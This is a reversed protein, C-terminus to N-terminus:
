IRPVPAPQVQQRLQDLMISLAGELGTTLAATVLAGAVIAFASGWAAISRLQYLDILQRWGLHQRRLLLLDGATVGLLLAFLILELVFIGYDAWAADDNWVGGFAVPPVVIVLLLVLAKAAGSSGRLWPFVCGFFFGYLPWQLLNWALTTAVAAMAIPNGQTPPTKWIELFLIVMWPLGLVAGVVAAQMGHRWGGGALEALRDATPSWRPRLRPDIAGIAGDLANRDKRYEAYPQETTRFTRLLARRRVVLAQREQGLSRILTRLRDARRRVAEHDPQHRLALLTGAAGLLPTVPIYFWRDPWYFAWCAYAVAATAVAPRSWTSDLRGCVVILVALDVFTVVEWAQELYADLNWPGFDLEPPGPYIAALMWWGLFAVAVAAFVWSWGGVARAGALDLVVRVSSRVFLGLTLTLLVGVAGFVALRAWNTEGWYLACLVRGYAAATGVAAACVAAVAPNCIGWWHLVRDLLLALAGVLVGTVAAVNGVYAADAADRNVVLAAVVGALVAVGLLWIPSAFLRRPRAITRTGAALVVALLCGVAVAASCSLASHGVVQWAPPLDAPAQGPWNTTRIRLTHWNTWDDLVWITADLMALALPVALCVAAIRHVADYAAGLHVRARRIALLVLVMPGIGLLTSLVKGIDPIAAAGIRMLGGRLTQEVVHRFTLRLECTGGGGAETGVLCRRVVVRGPHRDVREDSVAAYAGADQPQQVQVAVGDAVTTTVHDWGACLAMQRPARVDVVLSSLDIRYPAAFLSVRGDRTDLRDVTVREFSLDFSDRGNPLLPFEGVSVPGLVDRVLFSGEDSAEGSEFHQFLPHDTPLWLDYRARLWGDTVTVDLQRRIRMSPCPEHDAEARNRYAELDQDIVASRPLSYTSAPVLAAVHKGFIGDLLGAIVVVAASALVGAVGRKLMCAM